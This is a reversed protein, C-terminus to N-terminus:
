QGTQNQLKYGKLWRVFENYSNRKVPIDRVLKRIFNKRDFGSERACRNIGIEKIYVKVEDSAVVKTVRGYETSQFELVSPDDGEEWKRDTEKGVYRFDGAIVHARRLLGATDAQCPTGDRALSKSEPHEQYHVLLRAFQSPFVVNHSLNVEKTCDVMRYKKGNHVNVCEMQIWSDQKSSFQCVLLVNEKARRDFAHGFTSDVMPLFLFNYPRAIEWEGLMKLVNFTTITLRMM